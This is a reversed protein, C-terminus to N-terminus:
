WKVKDLDLGGDLEELDELDNVFSDDGNEKSIDSSQQRPNKEIDGNGDNYSIVNCGTFVLASMSLLIFIKKM